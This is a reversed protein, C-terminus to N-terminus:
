PLLVKFSFSLTWKPAVEDDAFNYEYSGSLQTPIGGIKVLKAVKAGLPLNSWRSSKWDYTINM